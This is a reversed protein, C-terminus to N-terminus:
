ALPQTGGRPKPMVEKESSATSLMEHASKVPFKVTFETRGPVSAVEVLGSHSKVIEHVLSLGLGTGKGVPKTTFFPDFIKSVVEAPIGQGNDIVKLAVWSIPVGQVLVTEITLVGGTDMADIANSALNIIIQQVKNRNGYIHPLDVALNLRIEIQKMRAQAKVLSLAGEIATNIDMPVRDSVTARSFTLLDQVLNKCRLAEREISKLPMEHPDNEQLRRTLGQAFGLIVGLPNNIEHAVGAALQGVASLKESQLMRGELKKRETMDRAACILGDVKNEKNRLISASFIVPVTAGDKKLFVLELDRMIDGALVASLKGGSLPNKDKPFLDSVPKDLLEPGAYGLLKVTADNASRVTGDHRVIFLPDTMHQMVADMFDKSVTTTALTHSMQNFCETLKGIEDKSPVPVEEGYTGQSVRLIGKVLKRTPLIVNRFLFFILAMAVILLAMILLRAQRLFIDKELHFIEKLSMGVRITGVRSTGSKEGASLLFEEELEDSGTYFVPVAVTILDEGKISENHFVPAVAGLEERTLADDYVKGGEAVNTHALVKGTQDFLAAYSARANDKLQQLEFLMKSEDMNHFQEGVIPATDQATSIGRRILEEILANHVQQRSLFIVGTSVLLALPVFFLLLKALLKM